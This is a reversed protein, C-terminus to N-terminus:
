EQEPEGETNSHDGGKAEQEERRIEELFDEFWQKYEPDNKFNNLDADNILHESSAFNIAKEKSLTLWQKCTPFDKQFSSICALNYAGKGVQISEAKLFKEKAEELLSNNIKNPNHTAKYKNAILLGWNNWALSYKEDVETAKKYKDQAEIFLAEKQGKEADEYKRKILVGWNNWALSYKENVETAKKFKDQAEIFLAEEQEETATEYKDAILLGWSNWAYSDKEDVETAKKFKDQAEIFLAEKQGKEADEYKRKILIGWNDWAYSAKEDIETAKKFKDQAEIFLAEKQEKEANEYKRKILLGWSNWAYSDKEDVETAKKFKDQAEIFLAEKQGKEADEYKRKILVGWNNWADSYKENIKTAKKYKDQSEIFLAEKQEETATKYKDSILNGWNNWAPSYKEDAETAKKFKDQAEIFLAEKQEETATEYKTKILVGWNNWAYSDKEDAETAKKYSEDALSFYHLKIEPVCENEFLEQYIYGQKFDALTDNPYEQKITKWLQLAKDWEENLEHSLAKAKLHTYTTQSKNEAVTKIAEKDSASMDGAKPSNFSEVTREAKQVINDTISLNAQCRDAMEECKKVLIQIEQEKVQIFSAVNEQKENLKNISQQNQDQLKAEFENWEKEIEIRKAKADNKLQETIRKFENDLSEKNEIADTRQKNAIYYGFATIAIGFLAIWVGVIVSLLTLNSYWKEANEKESAIWEKMHRFNDNSREIKLIQMDYVNNIECELKFIKRELSNITPKTTDLPANEKVGAVAGGAVMMVLCVAVVLRGFGSFRIKFGCM